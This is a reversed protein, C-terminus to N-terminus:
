REPVSAGLTRWLDCREGRGGEWSWADVVRFRGELGPDIMQTVNIATGDVPTWSIIKPVGGTTNINLMQYADAGETSWEPWNGTAIAWLDDETTTGNASMTLSEVIDDPLTPDSHIIFRGWALQVAKRVAETMTGEGLAERNFAMYADLDAGHESPPVSFQYRWGKKASSDIAGGRNFRSYATALWYSPCVFTTEAYLNNARQQQGIAFSSQNLATPGSDGSTGFLPGETVPSIFYAKLVRGLDKSSMLPFLGTAFGEFDSSSTISQPVFTQGEDANNKSASNTESWVWVHM